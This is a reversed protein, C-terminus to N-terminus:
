LQAAIQTPHINKKKNIRIGLHFNREPRLPAFTIKFTPSMEKSIWTTRSRTKNKKQQDKKARQHKSSKM